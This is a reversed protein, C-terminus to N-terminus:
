VSCTVAEGLTVQGGGAGAGVGGGGAGGGGAGAGVGGAGAGVGGGEDLGVGIPDAGAAPASLVPSCNTNQCPVSPCRHSVHYTPPLHFPGPVTLMAPLIAEM